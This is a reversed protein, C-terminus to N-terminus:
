LEGTERCAAEPILKQPISLARTAAFFSIWAVAGGGLVDVFYHWGTTLTSLCIAVSLALVFWRIRRIKWLAVVSLLALAVHFSPFSVVGTLQFDDPIARSSKLARLCSETAMQERTPGFGETTWPGVAPWLAFLGATLILVVTVSFVYRRADATRGSVSPLFLAVPALAWLSMYAIRLALALFPLGRCWNVIGATSVFVGADIRALAVDVLPASSLGAIMFLPVVLLGLALVWIANMLLDLLKEHGSWRCYWAIAAFWWLDSLRFVYRAAGDFHVARALLLEGVALMAVTAAMWLNFRLRHRAETKELAEPVSAKCPLSMSVAETAITTM